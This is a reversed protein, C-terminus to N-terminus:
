AAVSAKARACAAEFDALVDRPRHFLDVDTVELVEFGAVQLRQRRLLDDAEPVLGRHHRESQVEVVLPLAPHSFDVRGIWGEAGSRHVQRDLPPHGARALLEAFRSELNSAPPVYAAGRAEVLERFRTLGRRGQRSMLRDISTLTEYSVLRDSWAADIARALRADSISPMGAAQLLALAPSAVRVGELVRIRDFPLFRVEHVIAGPVPHDGDDRHRAIHPPDAVFGRVHWHALATTHSLAARRGADLVALVLAQHATPPAGVLRLVRPTCWELLRSAVMWDVQRDTAGM